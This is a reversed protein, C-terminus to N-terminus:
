DKVDSGCTIINVSKSEPSFMRTVERIKNAVLVESNKDSLNVSIRDIVNDKSFYRRTEEIDPQLMRSDEIILFPKKLERAIGIQTMIDEDSKRLSQLYNKTSLVIFLGCHSIKEKLEENSKRM